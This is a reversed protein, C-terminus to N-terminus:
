YEIIHKYHRQLKGRAKQYLLAQILILRKRQINQIVGEISLYIIM